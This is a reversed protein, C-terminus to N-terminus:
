LLPGLTDFYQSGIVEESFREEVDERCKKRDIRDIIKIKEAMEDTSNVLYGNEGDKVIEKPGGNPYAIVPTGCSLAEIVVLGFPEQWKIPFLFVSAEQYLKVKEEFSLEGHYVVNIGDVHPKIKEDFYEQDRIKGALVIPIGAKQSAEIAEHQNKHMGITGICLAYPKPASNFPFISTNIPNYITQYHLEPFETRQENSISILETQYQRFLSALEAFLNVHLVSVFRKGLFSLLPVFIAEGRMNNLVTDYDDKRKFLLSSVAALHVMELRLKRSAEVKSPDLKVSDEQSGFATGGGIEVFEINELIKDTDKEQESDLQSRFNEITGVAGVFLISVGRKALQKAQYYAVRETGGQKSPPCASVVSGLIVLKKM